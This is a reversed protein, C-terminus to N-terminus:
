HKAKNLCTKAKSENMPSRLAADSFSSRMCSMCNVVANAYRRAAPGEGNYRRALGRYDEISGNGTLTRGNAGEAVKMKLTLFSLETQALTSNVMKTMYNSAPLVKPGYRLAGRGTAVMVQFMGQEGQSGVAGPNFTSERYGTCLLYRPDLKAGHLKNIYDVNAVIKTMKQSLGKERWCSRGYRCGNLDFTSMKDPAQPAAAVEPKEDREQKPRFKPIPVENPLEHKPQSKVESSVVESNTDPTTDTTADTAPAAGVDWYDYGHFNTFQSQSETSRPSPLRAPEEVEPTSDDVYADAFLNNGEAQAIGMGCFLLSNILLLKFM